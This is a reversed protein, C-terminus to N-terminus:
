PHELKWKKWDMPSYVREGIHGIEVGTDCWLQHGAGAAMEFFGHDETRGDKLMFFPFPKEKKSLRLRRHQVGNIVMGDNEDMAEDFVNGIIRGKQVVEVGGGPVLDFMRYNNQIDEFVSRHVLCGGVGATASPIIQGPVFDDIHYYEGDSNKQYAIPEAEEQRKTYLGTVLTKHTDLLRRISYIKDTNDADLWKLWEAKSKLFERTIYNRNVDVMMSTAPVVDVLEIERKYLMACERVLPQWWLYSQTGYCPIGIFVKDM